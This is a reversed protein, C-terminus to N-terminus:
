ASTTFSAWTGSGTSVYMRTSTSNGGTNICISGIPRIHTPTDSTAEVTLLGSYMTVPVGAAIAGSTAPVATGSMAIHGGTTSISTGTAVGLVPTVFVPSTANIVGTFIHKGSGALYAVGASTTTTGITIVNAAAGTGINITSVGAGTGLNLTQAGSSSGVTIAGTGNSLGFTMIGTVGKPAITLSIAADSGSAAGPAITVANAGVAGTASGTILLGNVTSAVTTLGVVVVNNTDVLSSATDGPLATDLLTWSPVARSGTNQYTAAVGTGSDTRLYLCGHEYVDATTDAAGTGNALVAYGAANGQLLDIVSTEPTPTTTPFKPM